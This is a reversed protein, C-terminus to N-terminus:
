LLRAFAIAFIAYVIAPVILATGGDLAARGLAFAGIVFHALNGVLLPRNYIGGITSGRALWNVMAFGFYLAGLLQVLIALMPTPATGGARLLEHPAFTAAIGMAGM